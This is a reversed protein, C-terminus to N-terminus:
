KAIIDIEGHSGRFNRTLIKYGSSNLYKTAIEEGKKGVEQRIDM